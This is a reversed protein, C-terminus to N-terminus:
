QLLSLSNIQESDCNCIWSWFMRFAVMLHEWCSSTDLQSRAVTVAQSLIGNFDLLIV